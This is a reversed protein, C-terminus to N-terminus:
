HYVSPLVLNPASLSSIPTTYRQYWVVRRWTRSAIATMILQTEMFLLWISVHKLYIKLM